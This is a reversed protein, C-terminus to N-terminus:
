LEPPTTTLIMEKINENAFQRACKMRQKEAVLTCLEILHGESIFDMQVGARAKSRDISNLYEKILGM